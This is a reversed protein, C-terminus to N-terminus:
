RMGLSTLKGGNWAMDLLTHFHMITITGVKGPHLCLLGGLINMSTLICFYIRAMYVFINNIKILKNSFLFLLNGIIKQYIVPVGLNIVGYM